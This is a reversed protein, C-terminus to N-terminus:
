AFRRQKHGALSAGAHQDIMQGKGFQKASVQV